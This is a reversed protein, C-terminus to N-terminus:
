LLKVSEGSDISQLCAELLKMQKMMDDKTYRPETQNLIANAFNDVQEKYQDSEVKQESVEGDKKVRIIGKGDENQDPRFAGLVEITGNSGVVEYTQRSTSDFSCDFSAEVGNAFSMVGAVTTDVGTEPQLKASAYVKTPEQGIINRISHLTYCGVDYLSGGGLEKVMRINTLDDLLFSFSSRMFSVDGIEGSMILEKVKDHQPHFQYMFAEMFTVGYKECVEFIEALEESNLTAPKECLVHKGKKAAEIVWHKHLNNPLPIYVADIEPDDLLEEYSTYAKPIAMEEAIKISKDDRSAIALVEAYESRKIAPIVQELGIKATSLVGFKVNTM